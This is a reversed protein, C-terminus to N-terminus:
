IGVDKTMAGQRSNVNSCTACLRHGFNSSLLDSGCKLCRRRRKQNASDVVLSYFYHGAVSDLKESM